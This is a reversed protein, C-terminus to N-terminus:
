RFAPPGEMRRQPGPPGGQAQPAGGAMAQNLHGSGPSTDPPAALARVQEAVRGGHEAATIGSTSSGVSPYCRGRWVLAKERSGIGLVKHLM